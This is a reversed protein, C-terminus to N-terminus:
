GVTFDDPLPTMPVLYSDVRSILDGRFTFVDAFAFEFPTAQDRFRSRGTGLVVVVDADELMRDITLEPQGDFADNEIEGDFAEKGELTGHGVIDWTVDDTLLALIADHDSRRFGDFYAHVIEQHSSM